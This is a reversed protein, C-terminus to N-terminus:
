SGGSSYPQRFVTVPYPSLIHMIGQEEFEKMDRVHDDDVLSMDLIDTLKGHEDLKIRTCFRVESGIGVDPRIGPSDAARLDGAAAPSAV